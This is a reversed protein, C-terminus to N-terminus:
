DAKLMAKFLNNYDSTVKFRYTTAFSVIRPFDGRM